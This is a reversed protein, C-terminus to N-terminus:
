GSMKQLTVSAKCLWGHEAFPSPRVIELECSRTRAHPRVLAGQVPPIWLGRWAQKFAPKFGSATTRARERVASDNRATGAIM